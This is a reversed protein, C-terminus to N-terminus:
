QTTILLEVLKDTNNAAGEDLEFSVSVNLGNDLEGSGSFVLQTVWLLHDVM